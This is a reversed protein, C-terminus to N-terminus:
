KDLNITKNSGDDLTPLENSGPTFFKGNELKLTILSKDTLDFFTIRSRSISNVKLPFSKGRVQVKIQNGRKYPAGDIIIMNGLVNIKKGLKNIEERILVKEEEVKPAAKRTTTKKAVVKKNPDQPQGFPDNERKNILFMSSKEKIYPDINLIHDKASTSTDTNDNALLISASSALLLTTLNKM